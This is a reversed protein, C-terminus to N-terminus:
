HGAPLGPDTIGENTAAASVMTLEDVHANGSSDMVVVVWIDQGASPCM